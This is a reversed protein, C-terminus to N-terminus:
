APASLQMVMALFLSAFLRALGGHAAGCTEIYRRREIGRADGGAAGMSSCLTIWQTEQFNWTWASTLLATSLMM